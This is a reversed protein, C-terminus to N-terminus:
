GYKALHNQPDFGCKKVIIEKITLFILPKKARKQPTATDLFVSKKRPIKAGM